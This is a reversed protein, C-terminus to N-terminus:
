AAKVGNIYVEANRYVGEFEFIVTKDRYGEPLTFSKEYEYDCGEFWGTNTGGASDRMRKETIMADHPLTVTTWEGVGLKRFTWDRNFDTKLM